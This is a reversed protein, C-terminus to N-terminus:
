PKPPLQDGFEDGAEGFYLTFDDSNNGLCKFVDGYQLDRGILMVNKCVYPSTVRSEISDTRVIKYFVTKKAEKKEPQPHGL